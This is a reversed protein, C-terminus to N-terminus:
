QARSLNVWSYQATSYQAYRSLLASSVTFDFFTKLFMFFM